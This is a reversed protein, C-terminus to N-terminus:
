SQFNQSLARRTRCVTSVGSLSSSILVFTKLFITVHKGTLQLDKIFGLNKCKKLPISAWGWEELLATRGIIDEDMSSLLAERKHQYEISQVFLVINTLYWKLLPDNVRQGM